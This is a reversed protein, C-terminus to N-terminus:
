SRQACSALTFSRRVEPPTVFVLMRSASTPKSPLGIASELARQMGVACYPWRMHVGAEAQRKMAPWDAGMHSRPQFDTPTRSSVASGLMPSSRHTGQTRSASTRSTSPPSAVYRQWQNRCDPSASRRGDSGSVTQTPTLAPLMTIVGRIPSYKTSHGDAGSSWVRPITPKEIKGCRFWSIIGPFVMASASFHAASMAPGAYAMSSWVAMLTVSPVTSTTESPCHFLSEQYGCGTRSWASRLAQEHRTWRSKWSGSRIFELVRPLIVTCEGGGWSDVLGGARDMANWLPESARVIDETCEVDVELMTQLASVLHARSEQPM